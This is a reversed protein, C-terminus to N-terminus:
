MDGKTTFHLYKDWTFKLAEDGSMIHDPSAQKPITLTIIMGPANVTATSSVQISDMAAKNHAAISEMLPSNQPVPMLPIDDAHDSM